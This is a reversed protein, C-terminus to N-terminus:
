LQILSIMIVEYHYWLMVIVDFHYWLSIKITDCLYNLWRTVTKKYWLSRTVINYYFLIINCFSSYSMVIHYWRIKIFFRFEYTKACGSTLITKWKWYRFFRQQHAGFWGGAQEVSESTLQLKDLSIHGRFISITVRYGYFLIRFLPM